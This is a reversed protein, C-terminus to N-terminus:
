KMPDTPLNLNGWYTYRATIHQKDSVNQDIHVVTENQNGGVSGNGIWNNAGLATARRM